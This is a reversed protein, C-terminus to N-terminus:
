FLPVEAMAPDPGIVCMLDWGGGAKIEALADEDPVREWGHDALRYWGPERPLEAM